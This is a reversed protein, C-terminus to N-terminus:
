VNSIQYPDRSKRSSGRQRKAGKRECMRVTEVLRKMLYAAQGAEEDSHM